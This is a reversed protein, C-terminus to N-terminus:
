ASALLRDNGSATPVLRFYTTTLVDHLDALCLQLQDVFDHLGGDDALHKVPSTELVRQMEACSHMPEDYRPLELLARTIETLCREVSRPFQADHMLFNLADPGSVGCGATRLYMQLASLTRLVSMWTIDAYPALARTGDMLIGAQVDLVRTTMDAREIFRGIELFSYVDDHSMNSDLSGCLTQCGRMVYETWQPRTRRHVADARASLATLYMENLIEWSQKPLLARTIRLNERASAISSVVSGPNDLESTLFAVVTDENSERHLEEFSEASGTVALLPSWTLGADKPLDLFLETHVTVLRATAEARELYRGAWYVSEAVRSLLM